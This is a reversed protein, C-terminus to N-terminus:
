LDAITTVTCICSEFCNDDSPLCLLRRCPRDADYSLPPNSAIIFLLLTKMRAPCLLMDPRPPTFSRRQSPTTGGKHRGAGGCTWGGSRRRRRRPARRRAVGNRYQCRLARRLPTLGSYGESM